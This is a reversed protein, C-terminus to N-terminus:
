RKVVRSTQTTITTKILYVDCALSSLDAEVENHAKRRIPTESSLDRGLANFVLVRSLEVESGEISIKDMAPKPFVFVPSSKPSSALEDSLLLECEDDKLSDGGIACDLM